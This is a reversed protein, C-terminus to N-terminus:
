NLEKLKLFILREYILVFYYELDPDTSITCM